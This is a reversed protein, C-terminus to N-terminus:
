CREDLSATPCSKTSELAVKSDGVRCQRDRTEIRVRAFAPCQAAFFNVKDLRSNSRKAGLAPADRPRVGCVGHEMRRSASSVVCREAHIVILSEDGQLGQVELISHVDRQTERDYPRRRIV